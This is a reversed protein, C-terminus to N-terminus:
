VSPDDPLALLDGLVQIRGRIRDDNSPNAGGILREIEGQRQDEAWERIAQWTGSNQDIHHM